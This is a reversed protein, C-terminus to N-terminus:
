PVVADLWVQINASCGCGNLEIFLYEASPLPHAHRHGIAAQLMRFDFNTVGAEHKRILVRLLLDITRLMEPASGDADHQIHIVAVSGILLRERGPCFAQTFRLVLEITISQGPYLVRETKLPPQPGM